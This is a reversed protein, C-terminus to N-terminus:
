RLAGVVAVGALMRLALYLAGAALPAVIVAAALWPARPRTAIGAVLTVFVMVITGAGYALSYPLLHDLVNLIEAQAAVSTLRVMITLLLQRVLLVAVLGGLVFADAAAVALWLRYNRM